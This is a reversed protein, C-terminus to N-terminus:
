KEREVEEPTITCPLGKREGVRYGRKLLDGTEELTNMGHGFSPINVHPQSKCLPKGRAERAERGKRDGRKVGM